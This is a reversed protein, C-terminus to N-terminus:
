RRRSRRASARGGRGGSSCRPRRDPRPGARRGDPPAPPGSGPPSRRRTGRARPTLPSHPSTGLHRQDSDGSPPTRCGRRRAPARLRAAGPHRAPDPLGSSALDPFRDYLTAARGRRRAAGPRRRPLLPHRLLLALHDNANARRVDFADRTRSSRRTATPAASTSRAGGGRRIATGAVETDRHAIRPRHAPGPSDYRLVEEVANPWLRRPRRQLLDCSTPTSTSPVVANGILNVTTEFGAGLVLLAPPTCSSTPSGTTARSTRSSASCTTARRAACSPRHPRDFWAHLQASRQARGRPVAALSLAPDLTVAAGNGWSSCSGTCTRRPRRPHRRDGRGAAPRRLHEVLDFRDRGSRSTPRAAPRRRRCRDARLGSVQARPSPGRSWSHPLPHPPRTWPWCRRRISPGSRTPTPSRPSCRRLPGPLEGHGGAVGFDDSRLVPASRTTSPGSCSGNGRSRGTARLQEYTPFPDDLLLPDLELRAM